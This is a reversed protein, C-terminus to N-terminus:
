AGRPPPVPPTETRQWAVLGAPRALPIFADTRSLASSEAAISATLKKGVKIKLSGGPNQGADGEEKQGKAVAKCLECQHEGDFTNSVAAALPRDQSYVAIMGAWAVGQLVLWHGGSGLVLAVAALVATLRHPLSRRSTM